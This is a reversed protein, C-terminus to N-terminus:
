RSLNEDLPDEEPTAALAAEELDSPRLYRAVRGAQKKAEIRARREPSVSNAFFRREKERASSDLERNAGRRLDEM